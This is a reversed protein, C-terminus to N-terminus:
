GSAVITQIDAPGKKLDDITKTCQSGRLVQADGREIKNLLSKDINLPLEQNDVEALNTTSQHNEFTGSHNDSYYYQTLLIIFKM